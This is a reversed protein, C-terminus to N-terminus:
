LGVTKLFVIALGMVVAALAIRWSFPIRFVGMVILGVAVGYFIFSNAAVLEFGVIPIFFTIIKCVTVILALMAGAKIMGKM